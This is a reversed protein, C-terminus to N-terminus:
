NYDSNVKALVGLGFPLVSTLGQLDQLPGLGSHGGQASRPCSEQGVM